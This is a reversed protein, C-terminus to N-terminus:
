DSDDSENCELYQIRSLSHKKCTYRNCINCKMSASSRRREKLCLGCTGRKLAPQQNTDQPPLAYNASLFATIDRTLSTIKARAILHEKMLGLALNKLFIRRNQPNNAPQTLM